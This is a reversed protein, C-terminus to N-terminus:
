QAKTMNPNPPPPSTHSLYGCGNQLTSQCVSMESGCLYVHAIRLDICVSMCVNVCM